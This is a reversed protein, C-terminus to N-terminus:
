ANQQEMYNKLFEQREQESDFVGQTAQNVIEGWSGDWYTYAVDAAHHMPPPQYADDRKDRLQAYAASIKKFVEADGGKDPHHQHALKLFAKRVEERSAGYKIGLIEYYTQM